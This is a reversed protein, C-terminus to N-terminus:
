SFSFNILSSVPTFTKANPNFVFEKANPNLTSSKPNDPSGRNEQISDIKREEEKSKEKHPKSSSISSAASAPTQVESKPM